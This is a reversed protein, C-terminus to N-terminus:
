IALAFTWSASSQRASSSVANDLISSSLLFISASRAASAPNLEHTIERLPLGSCLDRPDFLVVAVSQKALQPDFAVVTRLAKLLRAVRTPLLDRGDFRRRLRVRRILWLLRTQDELPRPM